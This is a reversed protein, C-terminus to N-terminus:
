RRTYTITNGSIAFYLWAPCYYGSVERLPMRGPWINGWSKACNKWVARSYIRFITDPQMPKGAEVDMMGYCEFYAVKGRRAVLTVAGPLHGQDVHDQIAPGIRNLRTSSFGVEEPTVINVDM